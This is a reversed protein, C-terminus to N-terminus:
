KAALIGELKEFTKTLEPQITIWRQNFDNYGKLLPQHTQMLETRGVLERLMTAASKKDPQFRDDNVVKCIDSLLSMADHGYSDLRKIDALVLESRVMGETSQKPQGPYSHFSPEMDPM